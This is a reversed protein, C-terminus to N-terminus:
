KEYSESVLSTVEDKTLGAEASISYAYGGYNWCALYINTSSVEM